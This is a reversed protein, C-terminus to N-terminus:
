EGASHREFFKGSAFASAVVGLHGIMAAWFGITKVDQWSSLKGLEISVLPLLMALMAALWMYAKSKDQM